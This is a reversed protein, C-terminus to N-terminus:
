DNIQVSKNLLSIVSWVSMVLHVLVVLWLGICFLGLVIGSYLLVILVGLNYTMMAAILGRAARSEGDSRALLCAIGLAMIAVGAIRAITIAVPMDLSSGLLFITLFSPCAIMILGTGVEIMATLTLFNKINNRKNM